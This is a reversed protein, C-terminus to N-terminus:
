PWGAVAASPPRTGFSASAIGNPLAGDAKSTNM